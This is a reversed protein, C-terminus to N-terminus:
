SAKEPYWLTQNKRTKELLERVTKVQQDNLITKKQVLKNQGNLINLESILVYQGSELRQLRYEHKKNRRYLMYFGVGFAAMGLIIPLVNTGQTEHNMPKAQGFLEPGTLTIYKDAM